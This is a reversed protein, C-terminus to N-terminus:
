WVKVKGVRFGSMIEDGSMGFREYFLNDMTVRDAGIERCIDEFCAAKSRFVKRDSLISCLREFFMEKKMVTTKEQM